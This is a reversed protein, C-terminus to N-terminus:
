CDSVAESWDRPGFCNADKLWILGTLNDTVTGVGNDTFRPNPWTIGKELDGDDGDQTHRINGQRPHQHLITQASFNVIVLWVCRALIVHVVALVVTANM